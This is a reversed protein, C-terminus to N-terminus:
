EETQPGYRRHTKVYGDLDARNVKISGGLKVSPIDGSRIKRYVWSKGMGLVECVEEASLLQSAQSEGAMSIGEHFPGQLPEEVELFVRSLKEKSLIRSALFQKIWNTAMTNATEVVAQTECISLTVLKGDGAELVYYGMLGQTEKIHPVFDEIIRKVVEFSLEPDIQYRRIAAYM